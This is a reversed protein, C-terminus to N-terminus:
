GEKLGCVSALLRQGIMTSDFHVRKSKVKAAASASAEWKQAGRKWLQM